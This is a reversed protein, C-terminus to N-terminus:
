GGGRCSAQLVRLEGAEWNGLIGTKWIEVGGWAWGAWGGRCGGGLERLKGSEWNELIGCGEPRALVVRLGPLQLGSEDRLV